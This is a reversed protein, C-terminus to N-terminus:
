LIQWTKGGDYSVRKQGTRKNQQYVPEQPKQQKPTRGVISGQKAATIRGALTGGQQGDGVLAQNAARSLPKISKPALNYQPYVQPILQRQMEELEAIQQQVEPTAVGKGVYRGDIFGGEKPIQSKITRLAANVDSLEQRPTRLQEQFASMPMTIGAIKYQERIAAAPNIIVGEDQLRRITQLEIQKNNFSQQTQAVAQKRAEELTDLDPQIKGSLQEASVAYQTELNHLDADYKKKVEPDVHIDHRGYKDVLAKKKIEHTNALARLKYETDRTIQGYNERYSSMLQQMQQEKQQDLVAFPNFQKQPQQQPQWGIEAMEQAITENTIVNDM